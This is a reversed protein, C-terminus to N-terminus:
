RLEIGSLDVNGKLDEVILPMLESLIRQMAEDMKKLFPKELGEIQNVVDYMRRVREMVYRMQPPVDYIASVESVCDRKESYCSIEFDCGGTLFSVMKRRASIPLRTTIGNLWKRITTGSVGFIRAVSNISLSNGYIIDKFSERALETFIGKSRLLNLERQFIMSEEPSNGSHQGNQINMSM